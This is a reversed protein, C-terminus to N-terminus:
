LVHFEAFVPVAQYVKRYIGTRAANFPPTRRAM